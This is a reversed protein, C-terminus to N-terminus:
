PKSRWEGMGLVILRLQRQARDLLVVADDPHRPDVELLEIVVNLCIMPRPVRMRSSCLLNKKVIMSKLCAVFSKLSGSKSPSGITM